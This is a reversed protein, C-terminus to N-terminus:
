SLGLACQSGVALLSGKLVASCPEKGRIHKGFILRLQGCFLADSNHSGNDSM